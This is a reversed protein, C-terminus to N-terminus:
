PSKEESPSEGPANGHRSRRYDVYGAILSEYLNTGMMVHGHSNLHKLDPSSMPPKTKRLRHISGAGGMARYTDFFACGNEDAIRAQADVMTDMHKTKVDRKGSRGHDIVSMIICPVEPKGARVLQMVKGYEEAFGDADLKKTVVRRLDNGGFTMVLLDPDRHALQRALHDRNWFLLRRTYAGIMTITDWVVGSEDTELTVGYARVKGSGASRVSVTHPGPPMTVTEWRDEVQDAKTSFERVIKGDVSMKVRGGSPFAQYWLEASSMSTGHPGEKQTAFKTLALGNSTFVVGGLGYEGSGRCGYAIYCHDWHESKKFRVSRNSYSDHYRNMFVFGAGGDGFRSQMLERTRGPIGDLGTTSDGYHLVRVKREDEGLDLKTLSAYFADLREPHVLPAAPEFIDKPDAEYPPPAPESPALPPAEAVEEAPAV